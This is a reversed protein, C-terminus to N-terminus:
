FGDAECSMSEDFSNDQFPSDSLFDDELPSSELDSLRLLKEQIVPTKKNNSDFDADDDDETKEDEGDDFDDQASFLMSYTTKPFTSKRQSRNKSILFSSTHSHSFSFKKLPNQLEEVLSGRRSRRSRVSQSRQWKNFNSTSKNFNSTSKNFNSTSKNFFNRSRSASEFLGYDNYTDGPSSPNTTSGSDAGDSNHRRHKSKKRNNTVCGGGNNQLPNSTLQRHSTNHVPTRSSYPKRPASPWMQARTQPTATSVPTYLSSPRRVPTMHTRCIPTLSGRVRRVPTFSGRITRAPSSLFRLSEHSSHFLRTWMKFTIGGSFPTVRFFEFIKSAVDFPALKINVNNSSLFLELDDRSIFGDNNCDVLQFTNFDFGVLKKRVINKMKRYCQAHKTFLKALASTLQNQINSSGRSQSSSCPFWSQFTSLSLVGDADCIQLWLSSFEQMLPFDKSQKRLFDRLNIRHVTSCQDKLLNYASYVNWFNSKALADRCIQLERQLHAVDYILFALIQSTHHNTM